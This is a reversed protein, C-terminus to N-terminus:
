RASLPRVSEPITHFFQRRPQKDKDDRQLSYIQGLKEERDFTVQTDVNQPLFIYHPHKSDTMEQGDIWDRSLVHFTYTTAWKSMRKFTELLTSPFKNFPKDGLLREFKNVM